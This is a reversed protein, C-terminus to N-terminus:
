DNSAEALERAAEFSRTAEEVSNFTGVMEQVVSGLRAILSAASDSERMEVAAREYREDDSFEEPYIRSMLGTLLDARWGQPTRVTGSDEDHELSALAVISLQLLVPLAIMAACVNRMASEHGRKAESEMIERLQSFRSNLYLRPESGFPELHYVDNVHARRWADNSNAFDEWSTVVTSQLTATLASDLYLVSPEGIAIVAGSKAAFPIEGDGPIGTMRVLQPRLTVVGKVDNRQISAHGSWSGRVSPALRVSHRFKTGPCVILVILATDSVLSSTPPLIRELDDVSLTAIIRFVMRSWASGSSSLDYGRGNTSVGSDDDTAGARERPEIRQQTSPDDFDSLSMALTTAVPFPYLQVPKTM